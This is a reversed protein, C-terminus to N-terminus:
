DGSGDSGAWYRQFHARVKRVRKSLICEADFVQEGVASLEEMDAVAVAKRRRRRRRRSKRRRRWWCQFM